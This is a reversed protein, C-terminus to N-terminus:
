ARKRGTIMARVLNERHLLSSALVGGIHLAVLILTFNSFFEHVEELVEGFGHSTGRLMGALPGAAETAGYLVIGSLTALALMLLLAIVMAGGLPNHGLTRQAQGRLLDRGYTLVTAPTFVFDAFRAHRSGVMGWLLRFLILGGIGYGSWAHLDLMEGEGSLYALTFSAVLSWHFVRVLPDWVVVESHPSDPISSVTLTRWSTAADMISGTAGSALRQPHPFGRKPNHHTMVM